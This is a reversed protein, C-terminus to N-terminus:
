LLLVERLTGGSVCAVAVKSALTRAWSEGLFSHKNSATSATCADVVELASPTKAPCASASM